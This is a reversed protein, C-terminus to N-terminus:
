GRRMGGAFALYASIGFSAFFSLKGLVDAGYVFLADVSTSYALNGEIEYSYICNLVIRILQPLFCMIFAALAARKEFQSAFIKKM